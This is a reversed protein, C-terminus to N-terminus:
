SIDFYGCPPLAALKAVIKVAMPKLRSVQFKGNQDLAKRMNGIQPHNRLEAEISRLYPYVVVDVWKRVVEPSPDLNPLDSLSKDPNIGDVLTPIVQGFTLYWRKLEAEAIVEHILKRLAPQKSTTARARSWDINYRRFAANKRRLLGRNKSVFALLEVLFYGCNPNGGLAEQFVLRNLKAIELLATPQEHSSPESPKLLTSYIQDITTSPNPQLPRRGGFTPFTVHLM